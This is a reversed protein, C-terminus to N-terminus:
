KGWSDMCNRHYSNFFNKSIKKHFGNIIAEAALKGSDMAYYIGEGSLPSVFGAADGVLVMNYYGSKKLPGDLPIFAGKINRSIIDKPLFNNQKLFVLYQQYGKKLDYQKMERFSGTFGINISHKKPFLWAYGRLNDYKFYLIAHLDSGYSRNIFVPDVPIEEVISFGMKKKWKKDLDLCNRFFNGAKGNPGDAIILFKSSLKIGESLIVDVHTKYHKIKSVFAKSKFESGAKIALNILLMDFENRFVNFFLDYEANYSYLKQDGPGFVMSGRCIGHLLSSDSILHERLYDFKIIHNCLGGACPKDRPFSDKDLLLINLGSEALYKAATSGSPGAGIIIVDYDM